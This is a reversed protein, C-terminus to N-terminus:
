KETEEAVAWRKLFDQLWERDDKAKPGPTDSIMQLLEDASWHPYTNKHCWAVYEAILENM